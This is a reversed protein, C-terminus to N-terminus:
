NLPGGTQEAAGEMDAMSTDVSVSASFESRIERERGTHPQQPSHSLSLATSLSGSSRGRCGPETGPGRWREEWWVELWEM